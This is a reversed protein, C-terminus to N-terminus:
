CHRTLERTRYRIGVYVFLRSRSEMSSEGGERMAMGKSLSQTTGALWRARLRAKKKRRAPKILFIYKLFFFVVSPVALGLPADEKM